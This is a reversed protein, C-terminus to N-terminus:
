AALALDQHDAADVPEAINRRGIYIIPRARLRHGNPTVLPIEITSRISAGAFLDELCQAEPERVNQYFEYNTRRLLAYIDESTASEFFAALRAKMKTTAEDPNM